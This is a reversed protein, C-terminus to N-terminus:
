EVNEIKKKTVKPYKMYLVIANAHGHGLKFESKLWTVIEGHKAVVKGDKVLGKKKALAMFDEPTKSTQAKINDLYAKYTQM